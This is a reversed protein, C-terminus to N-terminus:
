STALPVSLITPHITTLVSAIPVFRDKRVGTELETPVDVLIQDGVRPVQGQEAGLRSEPLTPMQKLPIFFSLQYFFAPQSRGSVYKQVIEEAEKM